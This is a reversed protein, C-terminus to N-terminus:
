TETLFKTPRLDVVVANLILKKTLRKQVTIKKSFQVMENVVEAYFQGSRTAQSKLTYTRQFRKLESFLKSSDQNIRLIYQLNDVNNQLNSNLPYKDKYKQIIGQLTGVIQRRSIPEEAYYQGNLAQIPIGDYPNGLEDVFIETFSEDPKNNKLVSEYTIAGFYNNFISRPPENKGSLKKHDSTITTTSRGIGAYGDTPGEEQVDLGITAIAFLDDIKSLPVASAAEDYEFNIKIGSIQVIENGADDYTELAVLEGGSDDTGDLLNTLQIKSELDNADTPASGGAFFATIYDGVNQKMFSMGDPVSDTDIYGDFIESVLAGSEHDMFLGGFMSLEVEYSEDGESLDIGSALYPDDAYRLRSPLDSEAGTWPGSPSEGYFLTHFISGPTALSGAMIFNNAIYYLGTLSDGTGSGTGTPDLWGSPLSSYGGDTGGGEAGMFDVNKEVFDVRMTEVIAPYLYHSSTFEEVTPAQYAKFLDLMNLSKSMLRRNIKSHPSLFTYLYLGGLNEKLWKKTQKMTWEESSDPSKTFNISMEVTFSTKTSSAAGGDTTAYDVVIRNIFVSPLYKGFVRESDVALNIKSM